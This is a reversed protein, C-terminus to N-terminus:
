TAPMLTASRRLRKWYRQGSKKFAEIAGEAQAHHRPRASLKRFGGSGNWGSRPRFRPAAGGMAHLERSLTQRSVSIEFEDWVWQCLDIIRWRVVGHVSPIPGREIAAKLAARQRDQLRSPQGPAKRDILGEPGHANFRLVWDRVIQLTVGGIEAAETRTVGDYIAALALLRRVQNADASERAACRVCAADFDPRLPIPM